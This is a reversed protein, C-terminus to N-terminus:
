RMQVKQQIMERNNARDDAKTQEQYGQDPFIVVEVPGTKNNKSGHSQQRKWRKEATDASLSSNLLQRAYGLGQDIPM